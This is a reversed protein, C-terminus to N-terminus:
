SWKLDHKSLPLSRVRKGTAAYIANCLAPVAPPLAPEGLGTVPSDSKVFSVDVPCSQRMRMLRFTNFNAQKAAGNEFTIEQALAEAIGDLVSGQVQNEANLPNIIQPGIDGVAWVKDVKLEGAKSVTVQVVEAFYGRHSFHFGVGMGTGKPLKTKGWGSKEAVATLVNRMRGADFSPGQPGGRGGGAPPATPAPAPQENALMDLRFQIPDKNAAIALEDIFSHVVFALANSGPARLPGTPVGLPMGSMDLSYNAVYRAPFEGPGMTASSAGDFTIIHDRWAILKGSADVGGKFYHFGGPRYPDHTIDDERTWLLKIPVGPVQKAIAAAEVMYDNALRRGFGGGMRPLHITIDNAQLGLTQAVLNRGGGPTQSASWLEMKGDRFHATTNQPELPAHAIFPYSYAAEVVKAASAFAADVDGDKRVNRVPTAKSLAEAKAAFGASSQSATAGEDWKVVLKKRAQQILWWNDGVIAVGPMLGMLGGAAHGDVVFAHKIGPEKKIDDLNASAVKGAYTPCKVFSAYLMGPLTVDIGFM